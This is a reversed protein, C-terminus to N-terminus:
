SDIGALGPSVGEPTTGAEAQLACYAFYNPCMAALPALEFDRADIVDM